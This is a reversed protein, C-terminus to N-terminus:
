RRAEAGSKLRRSRMAFRRGGGRDAYAPTPELRRLGERPRSLVVAADCLRSAVKTVIAPRTDVENITPEELCILDGTTSVGGRSPLLRCLARHHHGGAGAVM